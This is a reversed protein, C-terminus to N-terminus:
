KKGKSAKGGSRSGTANKAAAGQARSKFSSNRGSRDAHSQIRNADATTMPKSTETM